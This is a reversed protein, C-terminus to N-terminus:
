LMGINAPGIPAQTYVTNFSLHVLSLAQYRLWPPGTPDTANRRGWEVHVRYPHFDINAVCLPTFATLMQCM